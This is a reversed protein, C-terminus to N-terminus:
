EITKAVGRKLILGLPNRCFMCIGLREECPNIQQWLDSYIKLKESELVGTLDRPAELLQIRDSKGCYPCKIGFHATKTRPLDNELILTKLKDLAVFNAVAPAV